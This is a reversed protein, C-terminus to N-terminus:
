INGDRGYIHLKLHVKENWKSNLYIGGLLSGLVWKGMKINDIFSKSM